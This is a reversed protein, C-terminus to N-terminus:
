TVPQTRRWEGKGFDRIKKGDKWESIVKVSGARELERTTVYLSGYIWDQSRTRAHDEAVVRHATLVEIEGVQGWASTHVGYIIMM